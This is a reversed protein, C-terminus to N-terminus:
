VQYSNWQNVKYPTPEVQIPGLSYSPKPFHNTKQEYSSSPKTQDIGASDTEPMRNASLVYLIMLVAVVLVGLTAVLSKM